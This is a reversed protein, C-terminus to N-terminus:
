DLWGTDLEHLKWDALLLVTDGGLREATELYTEARTNCTESREMLYDSVIKELDIATSCGNIKKIITEIDEM